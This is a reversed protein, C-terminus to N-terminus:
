PKKWSCPTVGSCYGASKWCVSPEQPQSWGLFAALATMASALISIGPQESANEGQGPTTNQQDEPKATGELDREIRRINAAAASGALLCAVRFKGRVPLKGAPFPRKLSRVTAEVAARLNCGEQQQEHSRRRREGALAEAQTFRLHHRPDRKGPRAPCQELLPCTQCVEAEFHAVFPKHQHSTQVAVTQGQSCTAKVPQGGQNLKITFDALHLEDPNPSRGRIATQLQEVEGQQLQRSGQNHTM